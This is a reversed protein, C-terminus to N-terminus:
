PMRSLALRGTTELDSSALDEVSGREAAGAIDANTSTSLQDRALEDSDLSLSMKLCFLEHLCSGDGDVRAGTDAHGFVNLADIGEARM